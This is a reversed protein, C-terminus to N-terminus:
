DDKKKFTNRAEMFELWEMIPTTYWPKPIFHGQMHCVHAGFDTAALMVKSESSQVLKLPAFLSGGCIQDDKADLAFTPVKIDTIYEAITVDDFYDFKNAYGFMKSYIEDVVVMGSWNKELMSNYLTYDEESLYERMM